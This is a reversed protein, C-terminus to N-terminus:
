RWPCSQGRPSRYCSMTRVDSLAQALTNAGGWITIWLPRSDDRDAAKILAQSGPSSKGTGVAALGYTPQGSNWHM